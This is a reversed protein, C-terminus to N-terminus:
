HVKVIYFLEEALWVRGVWFKQIKVVKSFRM